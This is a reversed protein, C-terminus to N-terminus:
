RKRRTPILLFIFMITLMPAAVAVAVLQPEIQMADATVRFTKIEPAAETAIRRGRVLMRHSNVGYPTCTVLTVLDEGPIVTLDDVENPEVILIQDVEYTLTEDLVQLLIIDGIKMKDLDSFLKASPLGRHGSLVTHTGAGGVPLSTWEIHGIAVQLVSDQVGHYIPLHCSIVPIDIYGMVGNGSVNLLSNYTKMEGDNMVFVNDRDQIRQNFSHVEALMADYSENDLNAVQEVYNVIAKSQTFSNWYDSFSPYLLLSLGAIFILILIPYTLDIKKKM